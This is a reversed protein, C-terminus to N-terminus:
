ELMDAATFGSWRLRRRHDSCAGAIGRTRTRADREIQTAPRLTQAAALRPTAAVIATSSLSVLFLARKM